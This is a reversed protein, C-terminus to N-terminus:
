IRHETSAATVSTARRSITRGLATTRWSEFEVKGLVADSSIYCYAKGDISLPNVMGKNLILEDGPKLGFDVWAGQQVLRFRQLENTNDINDPLVLASKERKAFPEVLMWPGLMEFNKLTVKQEKLRAVMDRQHLVMGEFSPLKYTGQQAMFDNSQFLVTEGPSLQTLHSPTGDVTPSAAVVVGMMHLSRAMGNPLVIIGDYKEEVVKLAVRSGFVSIGFKQKMLM